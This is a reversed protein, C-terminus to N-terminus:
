GHRAEALLEDITSKAAGVHNPGFQGRPTFIQWDSIVNRDIWTEDGRRLRVHLPDNLLLGRVRDNRIELTEFWLHERDDEHEAVNRPVAFGAKVIFAAVREASDKRQAKPVAHFLTAFQALTARALMANRQTAATSKFMAAEGSQLKRAAEAPWDFSDLACVAIRAGDLRRGEHDERRKMSGLAEDPMSGSVHEWPLLRVFVDTGVEFPEGPEPLGLDVVLEAISHLMSTAFRGAEVPVGHMELEHRGGNRLGDTYAWLRATPTSAPASAPTSAPASTATPMATAPNPAAPDKPEDGIAHVMFLLAPGAPMDEPMLVDELEQRTHWGGSNVNLIAPSDPFARGLMRLVSQLHAHPEDVDLATEVGIAWRCTEAKLFRITDDSLPRMPEVWIVLPSPLAPGAILVNWKEDQQLEPQDIITFAEDDGDAHSLADIVQQQTPPLDGGPVITILNIPEVPPQPWASIHAHASDPSLPLPFDSREPM